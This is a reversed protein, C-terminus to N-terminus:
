RTPREIVPPPASRSEEGRAWSKIVTASVAIAAAIMLAQVIQGWRSKMKELEGLKGNMTQLESRIGQLAVAIEGNVRHQEALSQGVYDFAAGQPMSRLLPMPHHPM